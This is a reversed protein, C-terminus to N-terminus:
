KDAYLKEYADLLLQFNHDWDAREEALQRNAEALRKKAEPDLTAAWLLADAFAEVDGGAALRGNEPAVWDQNGSADTVVVPLGTALAELLSVSTGDSLACSLYVDAARYFDPLQAQALRGPQLVAENLGSATIFQDIEAALSGSGPLMLRMQPNRMFASQFAKLATLVDYIPEWSRLSLVVVCNEWGWARRLEAGDLGPAFRRCDVGWPFEVIRSDSYATLAQARRRVARCDCLFIDSHDLAKKTIQRWQADRDADVLIDSGWSMLLLPHFGTLAAIWGCSQVPGAHLVDPRVEALIRRLAPVRRQWDDPTDAPQSGQPWALKQVGDPLPRLDGPAAAEDLALFFVSHGASAIGDLFRYDHPTYSRSFYFIKM